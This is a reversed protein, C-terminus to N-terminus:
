KSKYKKRTLNCTECLVRLTAHESHYTEFLKGIWSDKEKFITQFTVEKKNYEIPIIIKNFKLFDEVLQKFQIQYHDIHINTNKDILSNCERCFSLDSNNKFDLIQNMINERLANNFLTKISKCKELVCIRWSIETFSGDNNLINLALGKKNLKNYSITFDMFQKFKNDYNPHRKCLLLLFNFYEDNKFKVSNTVGLDTLIKRTYVELETQTKFIKNGIIQKTM